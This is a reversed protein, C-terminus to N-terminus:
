SKTHSAHNVNPHRAGMERRHQARVLSILKTAAEDTPSHGRTKIITRLQANVSELAHTTDFVRRIEPPFAFFPIV